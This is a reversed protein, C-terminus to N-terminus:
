EGIFRQRTGVNWKRLIDEYADPNLKHNFVAAIQEEWQGSDKGYGISELWQWCAKTNKGYGLKQAIATIGVGEFTRGSEVDIVREVPTKDTIVTAGLILASVTQNSMETVAKRTDLLTKQAIAANAEAQALALRLELERIHEQQQPIVTKIIQRAKSFAEVLDLKCEVVADTNKSFTMLTTAQDETLFAFKEPQGKGKIEGIEFRIVGFRQEIKSEYKKITRMFSEHEIDLRVAILRSDVVLDGNQETIQLILDSM